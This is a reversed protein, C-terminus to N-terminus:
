RFEGTAFIATYELGLDCSRPARMPLDQRFDRFLMSDGHYASLTRKRAGSIRPGEDEVVTSPHNTHEDSVTWPLVDRIECCDLVDEEVDLFNRPCNVNPDSRM